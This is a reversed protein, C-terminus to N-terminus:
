HRHEGGTLAGIMADFLAVVAGADKADQAFRARLQMMAAISAADDEPPIVTDPAQLPFDVCVRRNLEWDCAHGIWALLRPVIQPISNTVDILVCLEGDNLESLAAAVRTLHAADSALPMPVLSAAPLASRLGRVRPRCVGNATRRPTRIRNPKVTQRRSVSFDRRHSGFRVRNVWMVGPRWSLERSSTSSADDVITLLRRAM